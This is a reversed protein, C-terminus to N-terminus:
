VKGEALKQEQSLIKYALKLTKPAKGHKGGHNSGAVASVILAELGVITQKERAREALVWKSLKEMSIEGTNWKQYVDYGFRAIIEAVFADVDDYPRKRAAKQSKRGYKAKEEQSVLDSLRIAQAEALKPSKKIDNLTLKEDKRAM